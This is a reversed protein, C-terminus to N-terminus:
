VHVSSYGFERSQRFHKDASFTVGENEEVVVYFNAAIGGLWGGVSPIETGGGSDATFPLIGGEDQVRVGTIYTRFTKDKALTM